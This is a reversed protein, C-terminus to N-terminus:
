LWDFQDTAGRDNIRYCKIPYNLRYTRRLYQLISDRTRIPAAIVVQINQWNINPIMDMISALYVNMYEDYIDYNNLYQHNLYDRSGNRQSTHNIGIPSFFDIIVSNFWQAEAVNNFYNHARGNFYFNNGIGRYIYNNNGIRSAEAFVFTKCNTTVNNLYTELRIDRQIYEDYLRELNLPDALPFTNLGLSKANLQNLQLINILNQYDPFTLQYIPM